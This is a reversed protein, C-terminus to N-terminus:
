GLLEHAFAVVNHKECGSIGSGRRCQYGCALEGQPGFGSAQIGYSKMHDHELLDQPPLVFEIDNMGMNIVESKVEARLVVTGTM